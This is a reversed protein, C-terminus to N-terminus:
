AAFVAQVLGRQRRAERRLAAAGAGPWSLSDRAANM